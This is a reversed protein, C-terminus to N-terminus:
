WHLGFDPPASFGRTWGLEQERKIDVPFCAFCEVCSDRERRYEQHSQIGRGWQMGFRRDQTTDLSGSLGKLQCEVLQAESKM